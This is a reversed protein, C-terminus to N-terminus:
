PQLKWNPVSHKPHSSYDSRQKIQSLKEECQKFTETPWDYRLLGGNEDNKYYWGDFFHDAGVPASLWDAKAPRSRRAAHMASEKVSDRVLYGDPGPVLAIYDM